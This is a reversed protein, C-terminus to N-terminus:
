KPLWKCHSLEETCLLKLIVPWYKNKHYFIQCYKDYLCEEYICTEILCLDIEQVFSLNIDSKRLAVAGWGRGMWGKLHVHVAVGLPVKHMINCQLDGTPSYWLSTWNSYLALYMPTRDVNVIHSFLCNPTRLLNIVCTQFSM